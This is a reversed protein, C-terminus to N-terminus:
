KEKLQQRDGILKKYSDIPINGVEFVVSSLRSVQLEVWALLPLV